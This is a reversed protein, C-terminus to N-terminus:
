RKAANSAYHDYMTAYFDSEVGPDYSTMLAQLVTYGSSPAGEFTSNFLPHDELQKTQVLFYRVMTSDMDVELDAQPTGDQKSPTIHIKPPAPPDTTFKYCAVQTATTFPVAVDQTVLYLLYTCDAKLDELTLQASSRSSIKGYDTYDPANNLDMYETIRSTVESTVPADSDLLLPLGSDPIDDLSPKQGNVAPNGLINDVSYDTGTPLSSGSSNTLPVAIYWLDGMPRLWVNVTMDNPSSASPQFGEPSVEVEPARTRNIDLTLTDPDGISTVRNTITGATGQPLSINTFDRNQGAFLQVKLKLNQEIASSDWTVAFELADIFEYLFPLGQGKQISGFLGSDVLPSSAASRNFTGNLSGYVEGDPIGSINLNMPGLVTWDSSGKLRVLLDFRINGNSWILMDWRTDRSVSATNLPD